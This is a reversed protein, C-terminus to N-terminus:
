KETDKKRQRHRKQTKMGNETEKEIDTQKTRKEHDIKSKKCISDEQCLADSIKYYTCVSDWKIYLLFYTCSPLYNIVSKYLTVFDKKYPAYQIWIQTIM